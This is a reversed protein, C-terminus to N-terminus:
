ALVRILVDICLVIQFLRVSSYGSRPQITCTSQGTTEVIHLLHYGRLKDDISLVGIALPSKGIWLISCFDGFTYRLIKKWYQNKKPSLVNPGNRALRKSAASADLGIEPSVNLRQCVEHPTVAAM